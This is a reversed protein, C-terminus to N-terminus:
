AQPDDIHGLSQNGIRLSTLDSSAYGLLGWIIPEM